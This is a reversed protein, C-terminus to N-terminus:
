QWNSRQWTALFQPHRWDWIRSPQEDVNVPRMNWLATAHSTAGLANIILSLLLLAGGIAGEVRWARLRQVKAQKERATLMAQVGLIGLLILWPVVGTMLGPLYTKAM